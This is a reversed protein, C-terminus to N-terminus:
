NVRENHYNLASRRPLNSSTARVAPGSRSKPSSIITSRAFYINVRSSHYWGFLLRMFNSVHREFQRLFYDNVFYEYVDLNLNKIIKKPTM